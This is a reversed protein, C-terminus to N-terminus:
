WNGSVAQGDNRCGLYQYAQHDITPTLLHVSGDAFIFNTGGSHRSKFGFSVNWNYLSTEPHDCKHDYGDDTASQYNIPIITTGVNSGGLRRFWGGGTKMDSNQDPLAEGILITNSLGDTASEFTIKAGCRTFMGRALATLDSNGQNPSSQYGPFTLPKLTAPYPEPPVMRGEAVTGLDGNCYKQFPDHGCGGMSCQPGISGMYNTLFPNEPEYSDSPCRGVPLKSLFLQDDAAPQMADAGPERWEPLKTIQNYLATQEIYPLIYVLWSGKDATWNERPVNLGGPPLLHNADHYAHCALGLQRLNNQCTLRNASERSRQVAALLLGVLIAIIAIAVLLELLSFARGRRSARRTRM